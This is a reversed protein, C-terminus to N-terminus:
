AAAATGFLSGCNGAKWDCMHDPNLIREAFWQSLELGDNMCDDLLPQARECTYEGDYNKYGM